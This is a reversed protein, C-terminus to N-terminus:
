LVYYNCENHPAPVHMHCIKIREADREVGKKGPQMKRKDEGSWKKEVM